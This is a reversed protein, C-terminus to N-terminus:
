KRAGGVWRAGGVGKVGGVGKTGDELRTSYRLPEWCLFVRSLQQFPCAVNPHGKRHHRCTM